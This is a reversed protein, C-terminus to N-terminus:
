IGAYRLKWDIKIKSKTSGDDSDCEIVNRGVKLNFFTSNLDIFNFANIIQGDEKKITVKKNGFETNVELLDNEKLEKKVKIFENTRLNKIIPNIAPGRFKIILPTELDGDNIVDLRPSGKTAFSTGLSLPFTLGGTWTAILKSETYINQWFPSPAVLHIITDLIRNDSKYDEKYKPTNKVRVKIDRKYDGYEYQLTCEGNKPNFVNNLKKRLEYMEKDDQSILALEISLSKENFSSNNFTKGDQLPSKILNINASSDLGNLKKLIYPAHDSLIIEKNYKNKFIIKEM